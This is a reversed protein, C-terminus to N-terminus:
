IAEVLPMEAEVRRVQGVVEKLAELHAEVEEGTHQVSLTWQEDPGTGAPIIGRNIMATHYFYWKAVDTRLFSRWDEVPRPSFHLQGSIGLYNVRARLGADEVIEGYGRGLRNGLSAARRMAAPTLIRTLTVLAATVCLPNSNYTGAHAVRGPVVAELLERRGGVAALPYGGGLAKGLVALDPAVGFAEQAGGYFKGCTKVEDFILVLGYEDCLKRLGELFGRRPLVFGMNMPIPEVIAAALERGHDRVIAEVAELDNFPAVVANAVAGGLLGQSSPVSAPRRPRGARARPPKVSVLLGDHSGHYCGEFKLVKPRGTFARALRLAFATAEGGTVNLKVRQLRFRRCLHQALAPMETSEYGFLTGRAVREEMAEVLVPHAHGAVLAGFGMNFDLYENGDADWLRTGRGERMYLPYPELHRYNSNVGFPVHRTAEAFLKASGATRKRFVELEEELVGM